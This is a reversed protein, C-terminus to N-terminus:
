GFEIYVVDSRIDASGGFGAGVSCCYRITNSNKVLADSSYLQAGENTNSGTSREHCSVLVISNASLTVGPNWEYCYRAPQNMWGTNQEFHNIRTLVKKITAGNGITLSTGVNLNSHLYTDGWVHFNRPTGGYGVQVSKLATPPMLTLDFNPNLGTIMNVYLNGSNDLKLLTNSGTDMFNFYGPSKGLQFNFVGGVTLAGISSGDYFKLNKKVTLDRPFTYDGLNTGGFIGYRVEEALHYQDALVNGMFILCGITLALLIEIKKM